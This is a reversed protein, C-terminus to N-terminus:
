SFIFELLPNTSATKKTTTVKGFDLGNQDKVTATKVTSAEKKVAENEIETILEEMSSALKLLQEKLESNKM